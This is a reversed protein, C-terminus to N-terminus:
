EFDIDKLVSAVKPCVAAAAAIIDSNLNSRRHRCACEREVPRERERAEANAVKQKAVLNAFHALV